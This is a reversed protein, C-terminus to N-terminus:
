ERLAVDLQARDGQPLLLAVPRDRHGRFARRGAGRSRRQRRQVQIAAGRGLLRGRRARRGLRGRFFSRPRACAAATGKEAAIELGAKRLGDLLHEVLEPTSGSASTRARRDRRLRAEARAARAPGRAAAEREGLQGYAAALVVHAYYYGPMNVKLAIALAGRYDRRRYADIFALLGTGDPIIRSQAAEAREM